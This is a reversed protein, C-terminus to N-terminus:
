TGHQCLGPLSGFTKSPFQTGGMLYDRVMRLSDATLKMAKKPPKAFRRKLGAFTMKVRVSETPLDKDPLQLKHFFGIAARASLAASMSNGFTAMHLFYACIQDVKAPIPVLGHEACFTLWKKWSYAWGNATSGAVAETLLAEVKSLLGNVYESQVRQTSFCGLMVARGSAMIQIFDNVIFDHDDVYFLSEECFSDKM